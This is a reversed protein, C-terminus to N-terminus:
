LLVNYGLTHCLAPAPPRGCQIIGPLTYNYLQGTM